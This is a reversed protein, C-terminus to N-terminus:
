AALRRRRYGVGALGLGMLALTTPEPVSSPTYEIRGLASLWNNGGNNWEVRSVGNYSTLDYNTYGNVFSGSAILSYSSDYISWGQGSGHLGHPNYNFNIGGVTTTFDVRLINNTPYLVGDTSNWLYKVGSHYANYPLAQEGVGPMSFTADGITSGGGIPLTNFDIVTASVTQCLLLLVGTCFLKVAKM